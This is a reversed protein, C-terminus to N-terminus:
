CGWFGGSGEFGPAYSIKEEEGKGGGGVGWDMEVTGGAAVGSKGACVCCEREFAGTGDHDRYGGGGEHYGFDFEKTGFDHLSSVM